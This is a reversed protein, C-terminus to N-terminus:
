LPCVDEKVRNTSSPWKEDLLGRLVHLREDESTVSLADRHNQFFRKYLVSLHPASSLKDLEREVELKDAALLGQLRRLLGVGNSKVATQKDFKVEGSLDFIEKLAELDRTPMGYLKAAYVGISFGLELLARVQTPSFTAEPRETLDSTGSSQAVFGYLDQILRVLKPSLAGAGESAPRAVGWSLLSAVATRTAYIVEKRKKEFSSAHVFARGTFGRELLSNVFDVEQARWFEFDLANEDSQEAYRLYFNLGNLINYPVTGDEYESYNESEGGSALLGQKDDKLNLPEPIQLKCPKEFPEETADRLLDLALAFAGDTKRREDQTFSDLEALDVLPRLKGRVAQYSPERSYYSLYSLAELAYLTIDPRVKKQKRHRWYPEIGTAGCKAASEELFDPWGYQRHGELKVEQISDLLFRKGCIVAEFIQAAKATSVVQLEFLAECLSVMVQTSFYTQPFIKDAFHLRWKEPLRALDKPSTWAWAVASRKSGDPPSVQIRAEILWDVCKGLLEECQKRRQDSLIDAGLVRVLVGTLYCVADTFAPQTNTGPCWLYPVGAFRHREFASLLQAVLGELVEPSVQPLGLQQYKPELTNVLCMLVEAVPMTGVEASGGPLGETYDDLFTGSTALEKM